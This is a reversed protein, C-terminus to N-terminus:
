LSQGALLARVEKLGDESPIMFKTAWGIVFKPFLYSLFRLIGVDWTPGRAVPIHQLAADLMFQATVAPEVFSPLQPDAMYMMGGGPPPLLPPRTSQFGRLATESKAGGLSFITVHVKSGIVELEVQLSELFAFM